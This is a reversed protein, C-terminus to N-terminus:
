NNIVLFSEDYIKLAFYPEEKNKEKIFIVFPKHFSYSVLMDDVASMKATTTLVENELEGGVENLSFKINQIAYSIYEGDTEKIYKNCLNDYNFCDAIKIYPIALTNKKTFECKYIQQNEQYQQWLSEFDEEIADTMIFILEENEETNLSIGFNSYDIYYTNEINRLLNDNGNYSIGFCKVNIDNNESTIFNFNNITEFENEFTYKKELYSYIIKGNTNELNINDFIKTKINFKQKLDKNIISKSNSDFNDVFLYYRDDSISNLGFTTNNLKNVLENEEDMFEIKSLNLESKLKEWAIQFTSCWFSNTSIVETNSFNKLELSNFTNDKRLYKTIFFIGFVIIFIIIFLFCIKKIIYKM